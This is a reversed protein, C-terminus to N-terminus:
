ADAKMLNRFKEMKATAQEQLRQIESMYADRLAENQRIDDISTWRSEGNRKVFEVARIQINKGGVVVVEQVAGIIRRCRELRGRQAWVQDGESWLDGYLVHAKAKSSELLNEPSPEKLSDLAAKVQDAAVDKPPHFGEGWEYSM